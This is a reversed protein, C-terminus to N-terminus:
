NGDRRGSSSLSGVAPGYEQDVRSRDGSSHFRGARHRSGCASIGEHHIGRRRIGPYRPQFDDAQSLGGLGAFGAFDFDEDVVLFNASVKSFAPSDDLSPLRIAAKLGNESPSFSHALRYRVGFM